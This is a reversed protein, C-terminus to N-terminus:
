RKGKGVLLNVNAGQERRWGALPTQAVVRGKQVKLSFTHKVKGVACHHNRIQAEAEALPMSKVNPVVCLPPSRDFTVQASVATGSFDGLFIQCEGRTPHLPPACGNPPM